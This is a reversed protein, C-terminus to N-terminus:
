RKKRKKRQKPTTEAAPMLPTTPSLSASFQLWRGNEKVFITEGWYSVTNELGIADKSTEEFFARTIAVNGQIQISVPRVDNSVPRNGLEYWQRITALYAARDRVETKGVFWQSFDAHFNSAFTAFDESALLMPIREMAAIVQEEDSTLPAAHAAPFAALAILIAILKNVRSPRM